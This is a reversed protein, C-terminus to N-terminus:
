SVSPQSRRSPRRLPPSTPLTQPSCPSKKPYQPRRSTAASTEYKNVRRPPHTLGRPTDAPPKNSPSESCSPRFRVSQPRCGPVCARVRAPTNPRCRHTGALALTRQPSSAAPPQRRPAMHPSTAIRATAAACLICPSTHPSTYRPHSNNHAPPYPAHTTEPSSSPSSHPDTKPPTLARTGPSRKPRNAPKQRTLYVLIVFISHPWTSFIELAKASAVRRM